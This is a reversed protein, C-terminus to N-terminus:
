LLSRRALYNAFLLAQVFAFVLSQLIGLPLSILLQLISSDPVNSKMAELLFPNVTGVVLLTLFMLLFILMIQGLSSAFTHRTLRMSQLLAQVPGCGLDVCLPVTLMSLTIALPLATVFCLSELLPAIPRALLAPVAYALTVFLGQVMLALLVSPSFRLATTFGTLISTDEGRYAKSFLGHMQALSLVISILQMVTVKMLMGAYPALQQPDPAEKKPDMLQLLLHFDKQYYFMVTLVVTSIVVATLVIPKWCSRILKLAMLSVEGTLPLGPHASRPFSGGQQLYDLAQPLDATRVWYGKLRTAESQPLTVGSYGCTVTATEAHHLIVSLETQSLLCWEPMGATWVMTDATIEGEELLQRMSDRALPGLTSANKSYFWM